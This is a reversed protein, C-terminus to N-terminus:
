PLKMFAQRGWLDKCTLIAAGSWWMDGGSKVSATFAILTSAARCVDGRRVEVWTPAPLKCVSFQRSFYKGAQFLMMTHCMLLLGLCGDTKNRAM